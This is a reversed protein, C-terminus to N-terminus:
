SLAMAGIDTRFQKKPFDIKGAACLRCGLGGAPHAGGGHGWCWGGATKYGGDALATGARPLHDGGDAQGHADLGPSPCGKEYSQPYGGSALIVCAAAADRGSSTWSPSPGREM